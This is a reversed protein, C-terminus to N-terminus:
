SDVSGFVQEGLVIMRSGWGFRCADSMGLRGGM